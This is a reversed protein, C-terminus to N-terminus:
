QHSWFSCHNSCWHGSHLLFLICIHVHCTLLQAYECISIYLMQNIDNADPVECYFHGLERSSSNVQSLRIVNQGRSVAFSTASMDGMTAEENDDQSEIAVGYPNYWHGSMETTGNPAITSNCCDTKDTHCLLAGDDDSGISDIDVYSNNAIAVGRHSLHVGPGAM